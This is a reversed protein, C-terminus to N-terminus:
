VVVIDNVSVQGLRRNLANIFDQKLYYLENRWVSNEVKVFLRGERVDKAETVKAIKEGVVEPWLNLAEIEKARQALGYRELVQNLIKGLAQAM